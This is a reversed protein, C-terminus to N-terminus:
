ENSEKQGETENLEQGDSGKENSSGDKDVEEKLRYFGKGLRTFYKEEGIAKNICGMVSNKLIGTNGSIELIHCKDKEKM